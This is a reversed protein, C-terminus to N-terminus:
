IDGGQVEGGMGDQLIDQLDARRRFQAVPGQVAATIWGTIDYDCAGQVGQRGACRCGGEEEKAGEKDFMWLVRAAAVNLELWALRWGVCSRPGVSFPAFATGARKAKEEDADAGMWRLPDFEDPRNFYAGNRHITYLSIGVTTSPPIYEGDVLLGGPLVTRPAANAISPVLRMAEHICARLFAMSPSTQLATSTISSQTPFTSRITHTLHALHTPHHLLHHFLASLATSTTDAGATLLLMSEVWLDKQTFQQGTKPDTANMMAYFIDKQKIDNGLQARSEARQRVWTGAAVIDKYQSALLITDLKLRIFQPQVFNIMGRQGIKNIVTPFWRMKSSKLMDFDEGYCLGSIVDFTLWNCAQAFDKPTSWGTTADTDSGLLDVFDSINDLVRDEIEKIGRESFVQALIRRKFGHVDKDITTVINPTRRSASIAVYGDSKRVNSRVSYIDSMASSSNFSLANPGLRVAKGYRSHWQLNQKHLDGRWAYFAVYWDTLAALRPGPYKALPHFFLRYIALICGQNTLVPINASDQSFPM